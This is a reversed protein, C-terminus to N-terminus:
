GFTIGGTRTEPLIIRTLIASAEARSINNDPRFTGQTATAPGAGNVHYLIDCSIKFILM